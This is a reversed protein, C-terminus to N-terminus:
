LRFEGLHLPSSNPRLSCHRRKHHLSTLYLVWCGMNPLLSAEPNSWIAPWLSYACIHTSSRRRYVSNNLKNCVLSYVDLIGLSFPTKYSPSEVLRYEVCWTAIRGSIRVLGSHICFCQCFYSYVLWTQLASTCSLNPHFSNRIYVIYFSTYFYLSTQSLPSCLLADLPCFWHLILLLQQMTLSHLRHKPM